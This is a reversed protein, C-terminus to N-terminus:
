QTFCVSLIKGITQPYDSVKQALDEVESCSHKFLPKRLM